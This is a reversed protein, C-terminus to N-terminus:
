RSVYCRVKFCMAQRRNREVDRSYEMTVNEFLKSSSLAAILKAVDLNTPALGTLEVRVRKTIRASQVASAEMAANSTNVNRGDNQPSTALSTEVKLETLAITSSLVDELGALIELADSRSGLQEEIRQIVMLEGWRQELKGRHSILLEAEAANRNLASLEAWAMNVRVDRIYGLIVLGVVCTALLYGRRVLRAHRARRIKIREPLFDVDNM